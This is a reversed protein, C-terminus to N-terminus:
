EFVMFKRDYASGVLQVWAGGPARDEADSPAIALLHARRYEDRLAAVSASNGATPIKELRELAYLYPVLPIALWDYGAIKHYRSIVVGKELPECRRLRTPSDACVGTLYVAAHGTPNMRGFSGFPEELLLTVDAHAQAFAALVVVLVCLGIRM